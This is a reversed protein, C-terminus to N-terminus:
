HRGVLWEYWVLYVTQWHGIRTTKHRLVFALCTEALHNYVFAAFRDQTYMHYAVWAGLEYSSSAEGHTHAIGYALEFLHHEWVRGYGFHYAFDDCLELLHQATSLTRVAEATRVTSVNFCQFM